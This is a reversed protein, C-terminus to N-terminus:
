DLKTTKTTPTNALRRTRALVTADYAAAVLVAVAGYTAVAFALPAYPFGNAAGAAAVVGGLTPGV